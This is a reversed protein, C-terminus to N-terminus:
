SKCQGSFLENVPADSFQQLFDVMEDLNRDVVVNMETNLATAAGSLIPRGNQNVCCYANWIYEPINVRKVNNKIIWNNSSHIAGVLVYAQHCNANFLSTLKSEHKNWANQNLTPNQPVM